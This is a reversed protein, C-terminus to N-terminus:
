MQVNSINNYSTSSYFSAERGKYEEQTDLM